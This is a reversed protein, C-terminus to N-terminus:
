YGLESQDLENEWDSYAPILENECGVFIEPTGHRALWRKLLSSYQYSNQELKLIGLYEHLALTMKEFMCKPAQDWFLASIKILKQDPFNEAAYTITQGTAPDQETLNPLVVLRTSAIVTRILNTDLACLSHYRAVEPDSDSQCWGPNVFNTNLETLCMEAAQTFSAATPQGGNGKENAQSLSSLLLLGAILSWKISKM